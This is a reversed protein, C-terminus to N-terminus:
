FFVGDSEKLIKSIPKKSIYHESLEYNNPYEFQLIRKNFFRLGDETAILLYDKNYQVIQNVSAIESFANKYKFYSFEKSVPNFCIFVAKDAAMWFLGEGDIFLDNVNNFKDALEPPFYYRTTVGKQKDIKNLGRKTLVWVKNNKDVEIDGIFNDSISNSDFLRFKYRKFNGILPNYSNLGNPTGIWLIGDADEALCNIKSDSLTNTDRPDYYYNKIRYGDYRNLGSQTAFWFFGKKDQLIGTVVSQSLGQNVNIKYFRVNEQALM